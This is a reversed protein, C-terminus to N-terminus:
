FPHGLVKRIEPPLDMISIEQKSKKQKTLQKAKKKAAKQAKRDEMKAQIEPSKDKGTIMLYVAYGFSAIYLIAIPAVIIILLGLILTKM